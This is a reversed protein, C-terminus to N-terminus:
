DFSQNSEGAGIKTDIWLQLTDIASSMRNLREHIREFDAYEDETVDGDVSIKILNDKENVLSNLNNLIDLTIQELPKSKIEPVSLKGIECDHACYYNCLSPDKYCKALAIIEDPAPIKKESEIKEIVSSSICGSQEAAQERTYGAAERSIQYTNKDERVSKRGM